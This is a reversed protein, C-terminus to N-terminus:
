KPWFFETNFPVELRDKHECIICEFDQKMDINPMIKQYTTRLHKSDFAPMNEIFQGIPGKKTEGNISVIYAKMQDTLVLDGLKNKARRTRLETLKREDVGNLLKVEVVAQTRPLTINFTGSDTKTVGEDLVPAIIERETLNFNHETGATCVPCTIRVTYDSGYASARAAILIANKDGILLDDIKIRKDVIINQLMRELAVGKKLLAASTLLDEDKATMFKIEIETAGHLPHDEPYFEGGSPLEVFETPVVFNLPGSSEMPVGASVPPVEGGAPPASLRERNSRRSM